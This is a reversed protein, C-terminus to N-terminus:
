PLTGEAVRRYRVERQRVNDVGIFENRSPFRLEFTAFPVMPAVPQRGDV